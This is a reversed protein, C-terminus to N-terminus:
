LLPAGTERTLVAADAKAVEEAHVIDGVQALQGHSRQLEDLGDNLLKAVDGLLGHRKSEIETASSITQDEPLHILAAGLHDVAVLVGHIYGQKRARMAAQEIELPTLPADNQSM